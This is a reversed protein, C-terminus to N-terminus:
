NQTKDEEETNCQCFPCFSNPDYTICEKHCNRNIPPCTLDTTNIDSTNSDVTVNPCQCVPCGNVGLKVCQTRCDVPLSVCRDTTPVPPPTTMQCRCVPCYTQTDYTRCETPCSKHLPQCTPAKNQSSDTTSPHTTTSITTLQITEATTASTTAVTTTPTTTQPCECLACFTQRDFNLCHLPCSDEIPLCVRRNQGKSIIGNQETAKSNVALTTHHETTEISTQQTATPLLWKNPTQQHQKNAHNGNLNTTPLTTLENTTPLTTPENTTPLSKLKETVKLPGVKCACTICGSSTDTFWCVSPCSYDMLPCQGPLMQQSPQFFSSHQPQSIGNFSSMTKANNMGGNQLMPSPSKMGGRGGFSYFGSLSGMGTIMNNNSMSSWTGSATGGNTMPKLSYEGGTQKIPKYDDKMKAMAGVMYETTSEDCKCTFCGKVLKYCFTPCMYITKCKSIDRTSFSSEHYYGVTGTVFPLVSLLFYEM